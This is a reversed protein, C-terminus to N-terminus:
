LMAVASSDIGGSLFAGLRVDSVMPDAVARELEARIREAWEGASLAHDVDTPPSWYSRTEVRGNEWVLLSAPPLKSVGAFITRPAVAYGVALYDALADPDVSASFGPLAAFAKIESAFALAAGSQWYYVPKIGLRDRAI